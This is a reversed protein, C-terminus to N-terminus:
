REKSEFETKMQKFDKESPPNDKYSPNLNKISNVKIPNGKHTFTNETKIWKNKENPYFTDIFMKLDQLDKLWDFPQVAANEIYGKQQLAKLVNDQIVIQQPVTTTIDTQKYKAKKDLWDFIFGNIGDYYLVGAIQIDRYRTRKFFDIWWVLSLKFHKLSSKYKSFHFDLFDHIQKEKEIPYKYEVQWIGKDTEEILIVCYLKGILWNEFDYSTPEHDYQYHFQHKNEPRESKLCYSFTDKCDM